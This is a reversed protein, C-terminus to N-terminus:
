AARTSFTIPLPYAAPGPYLWPNMGITGMQSAINVISGSKRAAMADGFTRVTSFFGTANVAM